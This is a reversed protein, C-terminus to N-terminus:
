HNLDSYSLLFSFFVFLFLAFCSISLVTGLYMKLYFAWAFLGFLGPAKCIFFSVYCSLGSRNLCPGHARYSIVQQKGQPRHLTESLSCWLGDVDLHWRVWTHDLRFIYFTLVTRCLKPFVLVCSWGQVTLLFPSFLIIPLFPSPTMTNLLYTSSIPM